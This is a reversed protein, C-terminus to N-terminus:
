ASLTMDVDVVELTIEGEVDYREGVSALIPGGLYADAAERTHFIYVGGVEGTEPNHIYYKQSLGPMGRFKDVGALYLAKLEEASKRSQARVSVITTM